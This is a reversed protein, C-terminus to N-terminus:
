VNVRRVRRYISMLSEGERALAFAGLAGTILYQVLHLTIALALAVSADLGFLALAGVISLELVGVAGPSSPAAIGLAAVGLSFVAWLFRAGPFFANVMMAYQGIAVLWNALMWGVAQLFRKGDTLVSLGNFFSTFAKGGLRMLRPWRQGAREVIGLLRAQNRAVLYLAAFGLIVAGGVIVAAERAWTAGVVFPLTSLLLGAALALDMLREVIITSFVQWFDLGAKRALLFSRGVEGLRFPLLNNLLYGENLSWFVAGYSAREQLLTRWVMGRVGLWILTVLMALLVYRYDALRLAEGLKRLDALYLVLALSLVSVTLGPLIRRWDSKAEPQEQTPPISELTIEARGM